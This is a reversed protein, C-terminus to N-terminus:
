TRGNVEPLRVSTVITTLHSPLVTPSYSDYNIHTNTWRLSRLDDMLLRLALNGAPTPDFITPVEGYSTLRILETREGRLERLRRSRQEWVTADARGGAEGISWSAENESDPPLPELWWAHQPGDGYAADSKAPTLTGQVRAPLVQYTSLEPALRPLHLDVIATYADLAAKTSLQLRELLRETSWWNWIWRSRRDATPWPPRIEALGAEVMLELLDEAELVRWQRHEKGVIVEGEPCHRRARAIQEELASRTVPDAGLRDNRDVIRNAYEWALEPWCPEIDRLFAREKLIRDLDRQVLSRTRDWPGLAEDTLVGDQIARWGGGSRLPSTDPPLEVVEPENLDHRPQWASILRQGQVGLGLTAQWRSPVVENGRAHSWRSTNTLM